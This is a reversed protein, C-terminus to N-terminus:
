VANDSGPQIDERYIDHGVLWSNLTRTLTASYNKDMAHQIIAKGMERQALFLDIIGKGGPEGRGTFKRQVFENAVVGHHEIMDM